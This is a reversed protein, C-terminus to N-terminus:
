IGLPPAHVVFVMALIFLLAIICFTTVLTVTLVDIVTLRAPHPRSIDPFRRTM